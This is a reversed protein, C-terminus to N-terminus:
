QVGNKSLEIQANETAVIYNELLRLEEVTSRYAKMLTKSKLPREFADFIQLQLVKPEVLCVLYGFNTATRLWQQLIESSLEEPQKRVYEEMEQLSQAAVGLLILKIKLSVILSCNEVMVFGCKVDNSLRAFPRGGM